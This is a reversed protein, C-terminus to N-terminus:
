AALEPRGELNFVLSAFGDVAVLPEHIRLGDIGVIVGGGVFDTEGGADQLRRIEIGLGVIGEVVSGDTHHNTMLHGMTKVVLATVVVLVAVHGVPPCGGIRGLKLLTGVHTDLEEVLDVHQGVELGVAPQCQALVEGVMTTQLNGEIGEAM